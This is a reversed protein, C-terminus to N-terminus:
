KQFSELALSGDKKCGKTNEPTAERCPESSLELRIEPIHCQPEGEAWGKGLQEM